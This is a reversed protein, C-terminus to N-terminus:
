SSKAEARKKKKKKKVFKKFSNAECSLTEVEEM